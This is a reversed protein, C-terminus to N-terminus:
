AACAREIERLILEWSYCHISKVAASKLQEPITCDDLVVPLIDRSHDPVLTAIVEMYRQDECVSPTLIVIICAAEDIKMSLGNALTYPGDRAPICCKFRHCDELRPLLSYHVWEVDKCQNGHLVLCDYKKNKVNKPRHLPPSIYQGVLFRGSDSQGASPLTDSSRIQHQLQPGYNGLRSLLKSALLQEEDTILSNCVEFMQKSFRGCLNDLFCSTYKYKRYIQKLWFRIEQLVHSANPQLTSINVLLEIIYCPNVLRTYESNDNEVARKFSEVARRLITSDNDAMSHLCRGMMYHIASERRGDLHSVVYKFQQLAEM